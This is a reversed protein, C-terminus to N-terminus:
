LQRPNTGGFEGEPRAGPATTISLLDSFTVRSGRYGATSVNALNAGIVDIYLQHARLGSLGSFLSTNVM